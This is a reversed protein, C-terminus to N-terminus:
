CNCYNLTLNVDFVYITQLVFTGSIAFTPHLGPLNLMGKVQNRIINIIM